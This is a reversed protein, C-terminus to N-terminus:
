HSRKPCVTGRHAALEKVTLPCHTSVHVTVASAVLCQHEAERVGLAWEHAERLSSEGLLEMWYWGARISM